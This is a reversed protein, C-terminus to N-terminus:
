GQLVKQMAHSSVTSHPYLSVNGNEGIVVGFGSVIDDGVEGHPNDNMMGKAVKSIEPNSGFLNEAKSHSPLTLLIVVLLSTLSALFLSIIVIVVSM